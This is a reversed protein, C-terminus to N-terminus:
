PATTSLALTLTKAYNGTRLAEGAAISQRFGITVPDNSVPGVYGLLTLPSGGIPVFAGGATAAAPSSARAEVPQQLSFTGNVLRGPAVSGPDTISLTSDGATSTVKAAVSTEYDKAEGPTFAGLSPAGDLTLSLTAPVTGGVGETKTQELDETITKTGTAPKDITFRDHLRGTATRAEYTLRSGDVTIVQYLQTNMLINRAVAGNTVWNSDNAEYMKPGSVSVAYITGNGTEASAGAVVNGRGYSHDHGQLVLDVSYKELIPLWKARQTPNNRGEATSFMPHHFTVVSWRNPNSQLIGELWQAQVTLFQDRQASAVASVNSNLSIFRVGQYDTYFVTGMLADYVAGQGQPGNDPFAFQTRWYPALTTGSYEHNGPTALSPRMGNIWGSAKFWEGWQGDNNSSDILDGAHVMLRAEPADAFAQRVVRSWHEQIDNQADGYYIFSFPEATAAATEFEYWESWNTGDGLRYLYKTKPDLATFRVTHFVNQFGLSATQEVRRTALVTSAGSKFGPGEGAKAIQAQATKVTTDTRWTVSQTTAPDGEYTLVIRDALTSPRHKDAAPYAPTPESQSQAVNIGSAFLAGVAGLALLIRHARPADRWREAFV